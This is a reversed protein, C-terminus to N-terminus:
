AVHPPWYGNGDAFNYAGGVAHTYAGITEVEHLSGVVLTPDIEITGGADNHFVGLHAGAISLQDHFQSMASDMASGFQAATANEPISVSAVGAPKISLAYANAGNSAVPAGTHADITTGGWSEQVSAYSSAKVADLNSSIGTPPSSAAIRADMSAHGEAALAQFESSSVARSNASGDGAQLDAATIEAYGGASGSGASGSGSSKSGSDNGGMGGAAFRGNADRAQGDFKVVPQRHIALYSRAVERLQDLTVMDGMAAHVNQSHFGTLAQEVHRDPHAHWDDDTSKEVPDVGLTPLVVDLSAALETRVAPNGILHEPSWWAISEIDDGDPDDPNSVTDRDLLDIDDESPISWVHGEYVQTRWSGALEGRPLLQGVEECWERMAGVRTSEGAELCGGPFEWMGATATSPDNMSRQLM